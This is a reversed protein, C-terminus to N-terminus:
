EENEEEEEETTVKEDFARILEEAEEKSLPYSQIDWASYNKLNAIVHRLETKMIYKGKKIIRVPKESAIAMELQGLSKGCGRMAIMYMREDMLTNGM